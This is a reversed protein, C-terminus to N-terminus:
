AGSCGDGDFRFNGPIKGRASPGSSGLIVLTEWSADIRDVTPSDGSGNLSSGNLVSEASLCGLGAGVASFRGDGDRRPGTIGAGSFDIDLSSRTFGGFPPVSPYSPVPRSFGRFFSDRGSSNPVSPRRCWSGHSIGDSFGDSCGRAFTSCCVFLGYRRCM